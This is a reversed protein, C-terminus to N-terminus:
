LTVILINNTTKVACASIVSFIKSLGAVERHMIKNGQKMGKM